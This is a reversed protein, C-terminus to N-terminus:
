QIAELVEELTVDTVQMPGSVSSPSDTPPRVQSEETIKEYHFNFNDAPNHTELPSDESKQFYIEMPAEKPLVGLQVVSRNGDCKLNSPSGHITRHYFLLAEGAKMSFSTMHPRLQEFINLYNPFLYGAGRVDRKIRHSKKVIWMAGSEVDVDQLPIWINFSVFKKENTICWDQHIPFTTEPGKKKIIFQQSLARYENFTRDCAAQTLEKLRRMVALKYPTHSDWITMHIGNLITPPEGNEHIDQEFDRIENLESETLFPLKVVGEERLTDAANSDKLILSEWNPKQNSTSEEM